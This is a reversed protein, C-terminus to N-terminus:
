GPIELQKGNDAPGLKLFFPVAAKAWEWASIYGNASSGFCSQLM